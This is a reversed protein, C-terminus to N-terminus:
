RRPTLARLGELRTRGVKEIYAQHDPLDYVWERMYAETTDEKRSADVYNKLMEEDRGYAYAMEGPHSGFPAHVIADVLFWPIVTREPYKRIEEPEVVEEVSVILRKSARALEPAFGTIGDIQCNGFRDARHAHIIGVDVFSAPLAVLDRGTWPDQIVKAGSYKLTDTGLMSRVPVFPVGMAAAKLRWALAGNSWEIIKVSASEAARRLISSIGYVEWGQYTLDIKRVMGAAIELETEMVGQGAIDIPALRDRQRVVERVVSMPARVSGYLETAVYDGKKMFRTVAEKETMVKDVLRKEKNERVFARFEDPDPNLIVEGITKRIRAMDAERQEPNNQV